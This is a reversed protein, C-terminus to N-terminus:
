YDEGGMYELIVIYDPSNDLILDPPIAYNIEYYLEILRTIACHNLSNLGVTDLIWAGTFYGLVGVDGAAITAEGAHGAIEPNLRSAVQRYLIELQYWAMEPAPRTLGHDPKVVWGRLSLLVPALVVLLFTVATFIIKIGASRKEPARQSVFSKFSILLGDMGILM